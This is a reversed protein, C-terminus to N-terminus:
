GLLSDYIDYLEEFHKDCLDDYKNTKAGCVSGNSYKYQCGDDPVSDGTYTGSDNTDTTDGSLCDMCICPMKM